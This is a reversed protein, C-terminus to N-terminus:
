GSGGADSHVSASGGSRQGPYFSRENVAPAQACARIGPLRPRFITPNAMATWWPFLSCTSFNTNDWSILRGPLIQVGTQVDPTRSDIFTIMERSAVYLVGVRAQVV